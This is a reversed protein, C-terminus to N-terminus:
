ITFIMIQSVSPKIAYQSSQLASVTCLCDIGCKKDRRKGSLVNVLIMHRKLDAPFQNKRQEEKKVQGFM